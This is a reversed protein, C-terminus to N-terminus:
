IINNLGKSFILVDSEIMEKVLTKLNYNPRWGLKTHAKTPDGLLLDVETPRFYKSDVKVVIRGKELEYKGNCKKVFGFENSRIMINFPFSHPM